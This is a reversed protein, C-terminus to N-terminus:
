TESYDHLLRDERITMARPNGQGPKNETSGIDQFQKLLNSVFSSTLNFERCIQVQCQGVEQRRGIQWRM